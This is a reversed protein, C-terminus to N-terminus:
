AGQFESLARGPQEVAIEERCEAQLTVELVGNEVRATFRSASVTGDEGILARLQELLLRLLPLAM